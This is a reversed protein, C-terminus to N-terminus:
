EAAGAEARRAVCLAHLHALAEDRMGLTELHAVLNALYEFNDGLPGTAHAIRAAEQEPTLDCVHRPHQPNAGFALAAVPGRCTELPIFIPRYSGVIMERMWLRETEREVDAAAIRLALGECRAGPAEALAAMLGPADPSGRGGDLHLCFSRAWGVACARRLEALDLAPDWILSGYAFIWLDSGPGGPRAGMTAARTAERAEHTLRWDPGRGDLMARADFEAIRAQMDRFRSAEPAAVSGRLEPVHRFADPGFPM